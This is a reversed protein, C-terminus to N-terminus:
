PALEAHAIAIPTIPRSRALDSFRTGAPTRAADIADVITPTLSQYLLEVRIRAGAPPAGIRYTVSDSGGVFDPDGTVGVPELRARDAASPQYGAPLIRDDKGYRAADLARHTPAGGQDVLVAQWIQVQEPREIVDRHPQLQDDGALAGAADAAGSEYVVRDGDVVTVHLWMRRSPYGTPLKHGTANQVTVVLETSAATGRTALILKAASALHAEARVAAAELEAASVGTRAWDEAAAIARLMYANGGVFLHRGVPARPSLDPPYKAIATAIRVGDEDTPPVHCTQCPATQAVSSSRWELFTAQEVVAGVIVTHCTACLESRGVHDAQTPTY